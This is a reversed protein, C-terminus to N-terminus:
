LRFIVQMYNFFWNVWKRLMFVQKARYFYFSFFSLFKVSSEFSECWNRCCNRLDCFSLSLCVLFFSKYNMQFINYKSLSLSWIIAAEIAARLYGESLITCAYKVKYRQILTFLTLKLTLFYTKLTLYTLHSWFIIVCIFSFVSAGSLTSILDLVCNLQFQRFFCFAYKLHNLRGITTVFIKM